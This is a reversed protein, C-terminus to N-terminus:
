RLNNINEINKEKIKKLIGEKKIYIANKMAPSINFIIEGKKVVINKTEINLGVVEKIVSSIVEKQLKENQGINKFKTLYEAINFM